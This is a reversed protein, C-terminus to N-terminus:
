SSACGAVGEWRGEERREALRWTGDIRQLAALWEVTVVGGAIVSGSAQDIRQGDDVVCAVLRAVDGTVVVKSIEIRYKSDNAYRIVRGDARLARLVNRTQELMPGTHTEGIAPADPDPIAAAGIFARSAREYADRVLEAEDGTPASTTTTSSSNTTTSSVAIPDDDSSCAVGFAPLAVLLLVLFTRRVM